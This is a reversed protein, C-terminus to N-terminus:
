CQLRSIAPNVTILEPVRELNALPKGIDHQTRGWRLRPSRMRRMWSSLIQSYVGYTSTYSDVPLRGHVFSYGYISDSPFLKRTRLAM